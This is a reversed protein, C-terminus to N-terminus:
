GGRLTAWGYGGFDGNPSHKSCRVRKCMEVKLVRKPGVIMRSLGMHGWLCSLVWALRFGVIPVCNQPVRLIALRAAWWFQWKQSCFYFFEIEAKGVIKTGVIM